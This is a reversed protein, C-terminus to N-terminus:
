EGNEIGSKGNEIRWEVNEIRLEGNEIRWERYTRWIAALIVMGLTCECVSSTPYRIRGEKMSSFSSKFFDPLNEIVLEWEGNGIRWEGNEMGWEGNEM